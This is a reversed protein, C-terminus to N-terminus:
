HCVKGTGSERVDVFEDGLAEAHSVFLRLLSHQTRFKFGLAHQLETHRQLDRSLM